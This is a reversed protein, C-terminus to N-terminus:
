SQANMRQQWRSVVRAASDGDSIATDLGSEADEEAWARAQMRAEFVEIARLWTEKNASLNDAIVTALELGDLMAFNAGEGTPVMLHAGDGLLTIHPNTLWQHHKLKFLPRVDMSSYPVKLYGTVQPFWGKFEKLLLERAETYRGESVLSNLGVEDLWALPKRFAVYIRVVDNGNKQAIIGKNDGLVIAMGGKVFAALDPYHKKVDVLSIDIYTVGSYEPVASSLSPRVRSWAGDAGVVFDYVAPELASDLFHLTAKNDDQVVKSVGHNWKVTGPKLSDLLIQRLLFRDVEPADGVQGDVPDDDAFHVTGDMGVIKMSQDEYRAVEKFRHMLQAMELAKTGSEPHMDLSGGQQRSTSTPEREYVVVPINRLQLIRACILGGLGAGVVAISRQSSMTGIGTTVSAKSSLRRCQRLAPSGYTRLIAAMQMAFSYAIRTTGSLKAKHVSLSPNPGKILGSRQHERPPVRGLPM